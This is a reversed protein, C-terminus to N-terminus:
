LYSFVYDEPTLRFTNETYAFYNELERAILEEEDIDNTLLSTGKSFCTSHVNIELYNNICYINIQVMRLSDQNTYAVIMSRDPNHLTIEYNRSLLIESLKKIAEAITVHLLYTTMQTSNTGFRADTQQSIILAIKDNTSNGPYKRLPNLIAFFFSINLITHPVTRPRRSM